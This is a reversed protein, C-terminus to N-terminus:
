IGSQSGANYSFIHQGIFLRVILEISVFRESLPQRGSSDHKHVSQSGAHVGHAGAIKTNDCQLMCMKTRKTFLAM